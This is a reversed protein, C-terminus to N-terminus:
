YSKDTNEVVPVAEEERKEANLGLGDMEVALEADLPSAGDGEQKGEEESSGKETVEGEDGEYFVQPVANEGLLGLEQYPSINCVLLTPIPQLRFDLWVYEGFCLVTTINKTYNPASLKNRPSTDIKRTQVRLEPM